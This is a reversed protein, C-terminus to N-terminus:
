FSFGKIWKRFSSKKVALLNQLRSAYDMSNLEGIRTIDKILM